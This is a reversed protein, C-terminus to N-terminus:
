SHRIETGRLSFAKTAEPIEYLFLLLSFQFCLNATQLLEQVTLSVRVSIRAELQQDEESPTLTGKVAQPTHPSPLLLCLRGSIPVGM